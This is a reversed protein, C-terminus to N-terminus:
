HLRDYPAGPTWSNQKQDRCSQRMKTEMFPVFSEDECFMRVQQEFAMRRCMADAVQDASRILARRRIFFRTFINM